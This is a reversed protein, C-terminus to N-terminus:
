KLDGFSELSYTSGASQSGPANANLTLDTATSTVSSPNTEQIFPAFSNGSSDEKYDIIAPTDLVKKSEEIIQATQEVPLALPQTM